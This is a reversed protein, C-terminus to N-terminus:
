AEAATRLRAALRAVAARLEAPERVRFPWEFAALMRAAGDLQESRFRLVAGGATDAAVEGVTPPVRRRVDAPDADLWVEVQWTYEVAALGATVRAVPDVDGPDTFARDTPTAVRVRDVRFTRVEGRLHDHGTVYWRGSHFVIGHPDLDRETADGRWSVYEIRTTRRRRAGDALTLVIASSPATDRVVPDRTFDLAASLARTRERLAAPLVRDIKALASEGGPGDTTLALRQAAILGLVVATAEDDTLVLPPLRYGPLLRYGGHRGRGATVPVGVDTLVRAYRRVTREDVGLREALRAGTIGPASQLIELMALVRTTPHPM